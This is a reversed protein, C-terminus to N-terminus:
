IETQPEAKERIDEMEASVAEPAESTIKLEDAEEEYEVAQHWSLALSFKGKDKKESAEVEMKVREAPALNLIDDGKQVWITGKKLGAVLNELYAIVQGREMTGKFEVEKKSM